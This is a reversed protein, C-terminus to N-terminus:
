GRSLEAPDLEVQARRVRLSPELESVCLRFKGTSSEPMRDLLDWEIAFDFGTHHRIRERVEDRRSAPLGDPAHIRLLLRDLEPQVVQFWHIEECAMLLYSFFYADVFDGRPTVILDQERGAVRTMRPLGIGSACAGEILAARDSTAYRILPMSRNNLTTLVVNGTVGPPCPEGEDDLIEVVVNEAQICMGDHMPSEHSVINTERMGYKDYVECGFVRGIRERMPDPLPESTGQIARLSPLKAEQRECELAILHIANSYSSVLVPDFEALKAVFSRILEPSLRFTNFERRNSIANELRDVVNKFSWYIESGWLLVFPRGIRWNSCWGYTRLQHARMWIRFEQDQAFQARAGTSGSSKNVQLTARDAETSLLEGYHARLRERTLLPLRRLMRPSDIADPALGHEAFVRAYYPVTRAAHGAVEALKEAQIAAIEEPALWQSRELMELRERVGGRGRLKQEQWYAAAALGSPLKM